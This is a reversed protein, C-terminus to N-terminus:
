FVFSVPLILARSQQAARCAARGQRPRLGCPHCCLSFSTQPFVIYLLIHLKQEQIHLM